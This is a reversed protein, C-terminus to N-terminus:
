FEKCDIDYNITIEINIFIDTLENDLSCDSFIRIRNNEYDIEVGGIGSISLLIDKIKEYLVSDTPVDTLSTSTYFTDSVISGNASITIGMLASNLVCNTNGSTLNIFGNNLIETLGINGSTELLGGNKCVEFSFSDSYITQCRIEIDGMDSCGNADTVKVNYTGQTLGSAFLGNSVSPTWEITYPPVGSTIMATITADSGLICDTSYLILNTVPDSHIFIEHNRTCGSGDKVTVVYNGSSLNEFTMGTSSSNQTLNQSGSLNYVFPPIAGSDNIEIDIVGNNQGCSTNSVEYSFDFSPTFVLTINETFVCRSSTSSVTILYDGGSLNEFAHTNNYSLITQETSGSITFTFPGAGNAVSVIIKGSDENCGPNIKTVSVTGFANPTTIYVDKTITCLTVDTITVSFVGQSLGTFTFSNNFTIDSEGNSGQFFFPGTGGNVIITAEGNGSFCDPPKIDVFAGVMEPSMTIEYVATRECNDPSVVTVSYNGVSLGTLTNGTAPLIIGNQDRWTFFYENTFSLGTLTIKGSEAQCPSEPVIFAGFNIDNSDKIMCLQTKGTCGGGDEVVAYYFGEGLSNFTHTNSTGLVSNLLTGDDSFLSFHNYFPTVSNASVLLEGNNEGCTTNKLSTISACVGSSITLAVEVVNPPVSSDSVTIHYVGASLGAKTNGLGLDPDHWQYIFPQNTNANPVAFVSGIGSGNNECDGVITTNVSFVAM